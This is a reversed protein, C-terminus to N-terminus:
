EWDRAMKTQRAISTGKGQSKSTFRKYSFVLTKSHRKSAM